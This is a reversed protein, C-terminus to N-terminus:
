LYRRFIFVYAPILKWMNTSNIDTSLDCFNSFFLMETFLSLGLFFTALAGLIQVTKKLVRSEQLILRANTASM